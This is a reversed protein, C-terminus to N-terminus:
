NTQNEPRKRRQSAPLRRKSAATTIKPRPIFTSTCGTLFRNGRCCFSDSPQLLTQKRQIRNLRSGPTAATAEPPRVAATGVLPLLARSREGRRGGSADAPRSVRLRRGTETQSSGPVSSPLPPTLIRAPAGRWLREPVPFLAPDVRADAQRGAQRLQVLSRSSRQQQYQDESCISSGASADTPALLQLAFLGALTGTGTGTGGGM